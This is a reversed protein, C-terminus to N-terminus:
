GNAIRENVGGFPMFDCHGTAAGQGVPGGSTLASAKVAANWRQIDGFDDIVEWV